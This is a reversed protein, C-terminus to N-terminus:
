RAGPSFGLDSKFTLTGETHFKWDYVMLGVVTFDVEIRLAKVQSFIFTAKTPGPYDPYGEWDFYIDEIELELRHDVPNWLLQSVTADHLGGLSEVFAVIDKAEDSV